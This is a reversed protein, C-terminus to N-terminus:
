DYLGVDEASGVEVPKQKKAPSTDSAEGEQVDPKAAEAKVEGCDAIVVPVSCKGSKSGVSEVKELVHHGATVSGFVVHKGDLHSTKATCLFFQSGTHVGRNAM